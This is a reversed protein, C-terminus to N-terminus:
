PLLPCSHLIYDTAAPGTRWLGPAWPRIGHRAMGKQFAAESVPDCLNLFCWSLYLGYLQSEGLCRDPDPITAEALFRGLHSVAM